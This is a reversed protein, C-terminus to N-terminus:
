RQDPQWPAASVRANAGLAVVYIAVGMHRALYTVDDVHIHSSNDLGDSLLVLVQRRVESHERRPRSRGDRHRHAIGHACLVLVPLALRGITRRDIFNM